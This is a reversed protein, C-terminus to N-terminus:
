VQFAEKIKGALDAKVVDVTHMIMNKIAVDNSIGHGIVVNSNMGLVATGGHHEYDFNKFYTDGLNLVKTIEYFGEVQKLVVNGTFGDCVIVDANGNLVERGEVNGTFHFDESDKMLQYASQTLLNGKGEEQGINLLAVNPKDVGLVYQSYLSGLVGFQYLVDPKCDANVGVDLLLSVGGNVRALAATICPRIIGSVAKVSYFGGVLMAGTNGASAFGDIRKEKLLRYGVAISSDSKKVFAKTPHEGMDIVEKCDVIDFSSLDVDTTELIPQILDRNGILVLRANDPIEKLAMVAGLVAAKPAFDGGMVDLGIRM